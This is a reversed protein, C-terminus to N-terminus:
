QNRADLDEVREREKALELAQRHELANQVAPTVYAVVKNLLELSLPSYAAPLSSSLRIHGVRRAETGLSAQIASQMRDDQLDTDLEAPGILHSEWIRDDESSGELPGPDIVIGSRVGPKGPMKSFVRRLPGPRPELLAVEIRDYPIVFELADAVRDFMRHLDLDRNASIAIDSLARREEDARRESIRLRSIAVVGAIQAAIGEALAIEREGYASQDTSRLHLAGFVTDNVTLPVSLFSRLGAKFAPLLHPVVSVVDEANRATLMMTHGDNVITELLSRHAPVPLEPNDREPVSVGSSYMNLLSERDDSMTSIVVRDVPLLSGILRMFRDPIRSLDPSASIVRGIAALTERETIEQELAERLRAREMAPALHSAVREIFELDLPNYANASISAISLTGQVKDKSILPVILFCRLGAVYAPEMPPFQLLSKVGDDDSILLGSRTAAVYADPSGIMSQSQGETMGPLAAGQIYVSKLDGQISDISNVSIRDFMTVGYTVVALREFEDHSLKSGSMVRSIVTLAARRRTEETDAEHASRAATADHFVTFVASRGQYSIPRHSASIWIASGDARLATSESMDVAGTRDLERLLNTHDSPESSFSSFRNSSPRDSEIGLTDYFATNATVVSADSRVWITAAIPCVDIMAALADDAATTYPLWRHHSGGGRVENISM